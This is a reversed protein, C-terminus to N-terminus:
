VNEPVVAPSELEGYLIESPMGGIDGSCPFTSRLQLRTSNQPSRSLRPNQIPQKRKRADAILASEIAQRVFRDQPACAWFFRYAILNRFALQSLSDFENLYRTFLNGHGPTYDAVPAIGHVLHDDGYLCYGGGLLWFVHAYMRQRLNVAEGVYSILTQREGGVTWLYVGSTEPPMFASRQEPTALGFPGRWDLCIQMAM